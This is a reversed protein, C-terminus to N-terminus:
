PIIILIINSPLDHSVKESAKIEPFILASFNSCLAAM